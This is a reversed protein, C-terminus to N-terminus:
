RTASRPHRVELGEHTPELRTRLYVTLRDLLRELTVVHTDTYRTGIRLSCAAPPKWSAPTFGSTSRSPMCMGFPVSSRAPRTSRPRGVPSIYSIWRRAPARSPMGLRWRVHTGITVIVDVKRQVFDAALAPLQDVKADAFRAEILLNQGEAYGLQRLTDRFQRSVGGSPSGLSLYGVRYVKGSSQTEAFRPAVLLGFALLILLTTGKRKM